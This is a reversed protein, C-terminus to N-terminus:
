TNGESYAKGVWKREIESPDFDRPWETQIHRVREEEEPSACLSVRGNVVKGDGTLPPTHIELVTLPEDGTVWAWHVANKPIRSVSGPGGFFGQDEVFLWAEGSIVYNIQEADHRHPISHYGPSRTALIISCEEGHAVQATIAGSKLKDAPVLEVHPWDTASIALKSLDREAM